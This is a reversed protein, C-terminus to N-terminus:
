LPVIHRAFTIYPTKCPAPSKHDTEPVLHSQQLSPTECGERANDVCAYQLGSDCVKRAIQLMCVIFSAHKSCDEKYDSAHM